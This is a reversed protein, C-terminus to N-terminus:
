PQDGFPVAMRDPNTPKPRNQQRRLEGARGTCVDAMVAAMVVMSVARAIKRAGGNRIKKGSIECWNHCRHILLL